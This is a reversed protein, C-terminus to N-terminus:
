QSKPISEKIRWKWSRGHIGDWDNLKYHYLACELRCVCVRECTSKMKNKYENWEIVDNKMMITSMYVDLLYCCLGVAVAAAVAAISQGLFYFADMHFLFPLLLLFFSCIIGFHVFDFSLSLFWNWVFQLILSVNWIIETLSVENQNSKFRYLILTHTHTHKYMYSISKQGHEICSYTLSHDLSSFITNYYTVYICTLLLQISINPFNISLRNTTTPTTTFVFVCVWAINRFLNVKQKFKVYVM